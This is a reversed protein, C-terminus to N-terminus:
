ERGFSLAYGLKWMVRIAQGEPKAERGAGCRKQWHSVLNLSVPQTIVSTRQRM